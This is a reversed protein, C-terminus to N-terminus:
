NEESPYFRVTGINSQDLIISHHELSNEENGMITSQPYVSKLKHLLDCLYKRKIENHQNNLWRNHVVEFWCMQPLDLWAIKLVIHAPAELRLTDEVRRRFNINRFRKPWAPLIVSVVFSYDDSHPTVYEPRLLIHELVYFGELNVSKDIDQILSPSPNDNFAILQNNDRLEVRETPSKEKYQSALELLNQGAIRADARSSFKYDTKLLVNHPKTINLLEFNYMRYEANHRIRYKLKRNGSKHNFGLLYNVRRQFGSINDPVNPCSYNFARFRNSSIEPYKLLFESKSANLDEIIKHKSDVSSFMEFNVLAYDSFSEAFRALLHDLFKGKRELDLTKSNSIENLIDEFESIDKTINLSNPFNITQNYYTLGDSNDFSFIDRIHALQALYNALIQDFFILYGQLQKSQIIRKPDSKDLIGSDGIGYVAPFDYNISLYESLDKYNGRPIDLDFEYADRPKQVPVTELLIFNGLPTSSILQQNKYFNIKSKEADLVPICNEAFELKDFNLRRISIIDPNTFIIKQIVDIDIQKIRPKNDIELPDLYGYNLKNEPTQLPVGALVDLISRGRELLEALSYFRFRPTIFKQIEVFLETKVLDPDADVAIEIDANITVKTKGLIIIEDYDESLNRNLHLIKKVKEILENKSSDKFKYKRPKQINNDNVNNDIIDLYVNYIGKPYGDKEKKEVWVNRIGDIDLLRKRIDLITVPNCTLIQSPTFFNNDTKSLDEPRRALIDDIDLNARYRLDTIAYCLVELITIGPDHLNYDTWLKGSLRQLYEIVFERMVQFSLDGPFEPNKRSISLFDKM